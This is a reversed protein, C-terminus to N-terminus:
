KPVWEHWIIKKIYLNVSSRIEIRNYEKYFQRNTTAARLSFRNEGEKRIKNLIVKNGEKTILQGTLVIGNDINESNSSTRLNSIRNINNLVLILKAHPLTQQLNQKIVVTTGQQIARNKSLVLHIAADDNYPKRYTGWYYSVGDPPAIFNKNNMAREIYEQGKKPDPGTYHHSPNIGRQLRVGVLWVAKLYGWKASKQLAKFGESLDTSCWPFIVLQNIQGCHTEKWRAFQYQAEPNTPGAKYEL